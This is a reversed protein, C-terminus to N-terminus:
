TNPNPAGGRVPRAQEWAELDELSWRTCKPSLAIPEPFSPDIKLWRWITARGVGYRDAIQSDKLYTFATM